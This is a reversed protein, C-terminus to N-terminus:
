FCNSGCGGPAASALAVVVPLSVLALWVLAHKLIQLRTNM